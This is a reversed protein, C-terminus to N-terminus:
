IWDRGFSAFVMFFNSCVGKLAFLRLDLSWLFSQAGLFIHSSTGALTPISRDICHPTHAKFGVAVMAVYEVPSWDFKHTKRTGYGIEIAASLM